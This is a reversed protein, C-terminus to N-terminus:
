ATMEMDEIVNLDMDLEELEWDEGPSCAAILEKTPKFTFPRWVTVGDKHHFLLLWLHAPATHNDEM